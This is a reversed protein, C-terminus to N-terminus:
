QDNLSFLFHFCCIKQVCDQFNDLVCLNALSISSAHCLSCVNECNKDMLHWFFINLASIRQYLCGFWNCHNIGSGFNKVKPLNGDKASSVRIIVDFGGFFWSNNKWCFPFFSKRELIYFIDVLSAKQLLDVGCSSARQSRYLCGCLYYHIMTWWISFVVLM